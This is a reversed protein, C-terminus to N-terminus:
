QVINRIQTSIMCRHHNETPNKSFVNEKETKFILYQANREFFHTRLFSIIFMQYQSPFISINEQNIARVYFSRKKKWVFPKVNNQPQNVMMEIKKTSFITNSNYTPNLIKKKQILVFMNIIFNKYKLNLWM